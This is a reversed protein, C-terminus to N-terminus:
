LCESGTTAEPPLLPDGEYQQHQCQEDRLSATQAQRGHLKDRELM